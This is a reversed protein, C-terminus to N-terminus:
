KDKERDYSYQVHCGPLCSGGTASVKYGIPMEWNGFYVVNGIIHENDAGHMDHCSQCSISKKKMVHLAHLNRQGDRFNTETSIKDTIRKSDHCKFCMAFSETKPKTYNGDPFADTLLNRNNSIHPFHCDTCLGELLPKHVYEKSMRGYIDIYKEKNNINESHCNFCLNPQENILLNTLEGAHPTHCAICQGQKALPEHVIKATTLDQKVSEHCKYCLDNNGTLLMNSAPSSHASHCDLCGQSFVPHVNALEMDYEKGQHCRFCLDPDDKIVLSNFNSQHGVHCSLCQNSVFPGHGFKNGEVKVDHCQECVERENNGNLLATLDSSHPSHCSICNGEYFPAHVVKQNVEEEHCTECLDSGSDVLTFENGANGPHEKQNKEHCTECGDNLPSHIFSKKILSEHCGNVSCSNATQSYLQNSIFLIILVCIIKKM